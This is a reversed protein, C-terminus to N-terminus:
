SNYGGWRRLIDRCRGWYRKRRAQVEVGGREWDFELRFGSVRTEAVERVGVGGVGGGENVHRVLCGSHEVGDEGEM